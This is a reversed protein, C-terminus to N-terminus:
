AQDALQGLYRDIAGAARPPDGAAIAEVLELHSEDRGGLREFNHRVNLAVAGLVTEYLEALLPNGAVEAIFRHLMMDATVMQDLDGGAVAASRAALLARL